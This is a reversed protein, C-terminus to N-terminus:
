GGGDGHRSRQGAAVNAPLTITPATPDAVTVTSTGTAQNGNNDTVTLTITNDGLEAGRFTDVDISLSAIGSGDSSGNDIQEATIMAQGDADLDVTLDQTVVTPLVTDIAFSVPDSASGSNGAADQYGSGVAISNSNSETDADPTLTATFM